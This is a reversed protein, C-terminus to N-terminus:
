GPDRHFSYMSLLATSGKKMMFNHGKMCELEIDESCVKTTMMFPPHMRLVEFFVQELYPLEPLKEYDIHGEDNLNEIIEQRLKEQVKPDKALEFMAYLAVIGATEFSDVFFTYGHASAEIDSQNKKQKTSIIFDLFDDRREKSLERKEIASKMLEIFRDEHQKPILKKGFLSQVSETVGKLISRGLQLMEPPNEGFCSQNEDFITLCCIDCTYRGSIDRADFSKQSSKTGKEIFATM